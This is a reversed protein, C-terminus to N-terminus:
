AAEGNTPQIRPKVQTLVWQAHSWTYVKITHQCVVRRTKNNM